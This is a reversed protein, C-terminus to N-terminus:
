IHIVIQLRDTAKLVVLCHFANETSESEIPVGNILWMIKAKPTADVDCVFTVNDEVGKSIDEPRRTWRPRAAPLSVFACMKPTRNPKGRWTLGPSTVLVRKLCVGNYM